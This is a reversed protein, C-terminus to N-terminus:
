SDMLINNFNPAFEISKFIIKTYWEIGDDNCLYLLKPVTTELIEGFEYSSYTSKLTDADVVVKGRLNGVIEKLYPLNYETETDKRGKLITNDLLDSLYDYIETCKLLEDKITFDIFNMKYLNEVSEIVRYLSNIEAWISYVPMLSKEKADPFEFISDGFVSANIYVEIQKYDTDPDIETVYLGRGSANPKSETLKIEPIM